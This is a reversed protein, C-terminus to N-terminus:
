PAPSSSRLVSPLPPAGAADSGTPSVELKMIDGSASTLTVSDRWPVQNFLLSLLGAALVVKLLTLWFHQAGPGTATASPSVM